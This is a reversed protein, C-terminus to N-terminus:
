APKNQQQKEYQERFMKSFKDRLDKREVISRSLTHQIMLDNDAIAKKLRRQMATIDSSLLAHLHFLEDNTFM